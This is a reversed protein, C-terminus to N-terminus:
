QVAEFQAKLAVASLESKSIKGESDSCQKSSHKTRSCLCRLTGYAFRTYIYIHGRANIEYQLVKFLVTGLIAPAGYIYVVSGKGSGGKVFTSSCWIYIHGVRRRIEKKSLM